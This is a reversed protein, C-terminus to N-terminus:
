IGPALFYHLPPRKMYHLSLFLPSIGRTYPYVVRGM